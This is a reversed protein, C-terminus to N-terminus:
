LIAARFLFVWIFISEQLLNLESILFRHVDLESKFTEFKRCLHHISSSNCLSHFSGSGSRPSLFSTPSPRASAADAIRASSVSALSAPPASRRTAVLGMPLGNWPTPVCPM